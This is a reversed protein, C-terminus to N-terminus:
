IKAPNSLQITITDIQWNTSRNKYRISLIGNITDKAPNMRGWGWLLKFNDNVAHWPSATDVAFVYNDVSDMQCVINDYFANNFFNALFFTTPTATEKLQVPYTSDQGRVAPSDCGVIVQYCSWTGFFKTASAISCDSGEFGVPCNCKPLDTATDM